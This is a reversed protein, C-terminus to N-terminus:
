IIKAWWEYKHPVINQMNDIYLLPFLFLNQVINRLSTFYILDSEWSLNHTHVNTGHTNSFIWSDGRVWREWDNNIYEAHGTCHRMKREGLEVCVISRNNVDSTIAGESPPSLLFHYISASAYNAIGRLVTSFAFWCPSAKCTSRLQLDPRGPFCDSM